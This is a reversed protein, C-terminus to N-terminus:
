RETMAKYKVMNTWFSRCHPCSKSEGELWRVMASFLVLCSCVSCKCVEDDNLITEMTIVCMQGPMNNYLPADIWESFEYQVGNFWWQNFGNPGQVAPMGGDRHRMGHVWWEVTKKLFSYGHIVAPLDGERHRQGNYWWQMAGNPGEYSPMGGERHRIGNYWWEREGTAFEVAPLDHERHLLGHYHWSRFFGPRVVAPLNLERHVVGNKYWYQDGNANEVAPLDGERHLQGFAYWARDGNASEVLNGKVEM